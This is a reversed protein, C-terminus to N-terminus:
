CRAAREAELWEYGKVLVPHCKDPWCHLRGLTESIEGDCTTPDCSTPQAVIEDPQHQWHRHYLDWGQVEGLITDEPKEFVVLDPKHQGMQALMATSDRGLGHSKAEARRRANAKRCARADLWLILSDFVYEVGGVAYHIITVVGLGATVFAVAWVVSMLVDLM